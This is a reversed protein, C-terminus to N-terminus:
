RKAKKRRPAPTKTRKMKEEVAKKVQEEHQTQEELRKQELWKAYQAFNNVIREEHEKPFKKDELLKNSAELGAIMDGVHWASSAVEDLVM